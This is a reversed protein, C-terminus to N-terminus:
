EKSMCEECINEGKEIEEKEMRAGCIDCRDIDTDFFTSIIKYITHRAM